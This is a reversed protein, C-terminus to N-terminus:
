RVRAVPRSSLQLTFAANHQPAASLLPFRWRETQEEAVIQGHPVFQWIWPL